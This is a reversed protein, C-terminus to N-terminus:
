CYGYQQEVATLSSDIIDVIRDVEARTICLPPSISIITSARTLLGKDL